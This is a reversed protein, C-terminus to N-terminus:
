DAAALISSPVGLTQAAGPEAIGFVPFRKLATFLAASALFLVAAGGIAGRYNGTLDHMMGFFISGAAMGTYLSAALAGFIASYARMGFLRAAFFSIFTYEGGVTVGLLVTGIFAWTLALPALLWAVMSVASAILVACAVFEPQFADVAWGTGLRAVVVSLSMSSLLAFTMQIPVGAEVAVSQLQSIFGISAASATFIAASLVWFRPTRIADAAAWGEGAVQAENRPTSRRLLSVALLGGGVALVALIRYCLRWEGRALTPGLLPPLAAGAVAIGTLVIAIAAGRSTPFKEAIPRTYSVPNTACGLVNFAMFGLYFAILSGNMDSLSWYSAALMLASLGAVPRVGFRDVLRGALPIFIATIPMALLAVAAVGKSWHFERELARFFLSSINTYTAIGSALGITAGFLDPWGRRFESSFGSM